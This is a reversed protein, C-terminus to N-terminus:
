EKLRKAVTEFFDIVHTLIKRADDEEYRERAHAVRIRWGNNFYRFQSAAESYFKLDEDRKASRQAKKIADIKPEIEGVISGWEALEILFPFTVGLDVAFARVGVEAARMAHFVSATYQAAAYCNGASIIEKTALPFRSSITSNLVLEYYKEREPTVFLFLKGDLEAYIARVIINFEGGSRPIDNKYASLLKGSIPLNIEKCLDVMSLIYYHVRERQNESLDEQPLGHEPMQDTINFINEADFIARGLTIYKEAYVRLM